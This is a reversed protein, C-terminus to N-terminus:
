AEKWQLVEFGSILITVSELLVSQEQMWYGGARESTRPGSLGGEKQLVEFGRILISVSKLPVSQEQM